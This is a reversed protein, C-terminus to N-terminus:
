RGSFRRRERPRLRKGDLPLVVEARGRGHRRGEPAHTSRGGRPPHGGESRRDRAHRVCSARLDVREPCRRAPAGALDFRAVGDRRFAPARHAGAVAIRRAGTGTRRARTRARARRSGGCGCRSPCRSPSRQVFSCGCRRRIRDALFHDPWVRRRAVHGARAPDGGARASRRDQVTRSSRSGSPDRMAAEARALSEADAVTAIEISTQKESVVGALRAHLTARINAAREADGIVVVRVAVRRDEIRVSSQVTEGPLERVAAQVASRVRIEWAVEGLASRLPVFVLLVLALPMAIRVFRSARLSFFQSLRRAIRGSLRAPTLEEAHTRELEAIPVASFSFLLFGVVSVLVIACFNATFLLAAGAAIRRAGTGLGYGVVCLPPVLAIGIATGAATSSTDSGPRIAAYIGALACCGAIALDLATPSTRASIESTVESFPLAVVIAAAGAVVVVSSAAIRIASRVVLVPSGVALGMGFHIIPTMLPSVLMAGIVVAGSGVILGLTAIVMSTVLQLWYGGARGRGNALMAAVTEKKTGADVGFADALRETAGKM